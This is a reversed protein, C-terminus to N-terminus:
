QMRGFIEIATTHGYEARRIKELTTSSLEAEDVGLELILLGGEALLNKESVASLIRQAIGFHYPPDAFVLDFQRDSMRELARFVEARLIEVNELHSRNFNDEICDASSRDVFVASAAGRSLAELGLAGTGAFLDLVNKGDFDIMNNLINFLSEKIRDATPRTSMGRPTKLKLGRAKGSIIRM